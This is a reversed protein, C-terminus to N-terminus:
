TKRPPPKVIDDLPSNIQQVKKQSVHTYIETTKTSSHGLLEQIYRLDVGAELLHTAFSHRLTHFTAPKTIGARRIAKNFVEEVTRPAIQKGPKSGEFLWKLPRHVRWYQRLIDLAAHGLLTYRDKRGKAGRVHTMNRNSDIDTPLLTRCEKLRLGGGYTVMLIAKHKVNSTMDFIRKVEEKSLVDPLKKEKKPRPIDGLVMPRDYIEVYLYRLANIMQNVWAASYERQELLELLFKRIDGTSADHLTKPCIHRAFIRLCSRYAKSTQHSYNALRLEQRVTEIDSLSSQLGEVSPDILLEESPFTRYLTELSGGSFPVSWLKEREHWQSDPIGRMASVWEGRYPFEVWVRSSGPLTVTAAGSSEPLQLFVRISHM